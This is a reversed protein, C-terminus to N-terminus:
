PIKAVKRAPISVLKKIRCAPAQRSPVARSSPSGFFVLLSSIKHQCPGWKDDDKEDGHDDKKHQEDLELEARRYREDKGGDDQAHGAAHRQVAQGAGDVAAEAAGHGAQAQQQGEAADESQQQGFGAAGLLQRFRHEAFEPFLVVGQGQVQRAEDDGDRDEEAGGVDHQRRQQLGHGFDGPLLQGDVDDRQVRAKADGM